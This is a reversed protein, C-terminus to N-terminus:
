GIPRRDASLAVSCHRADRFIHGPVLHGLLLSDLSGLETKEVRPCVQGGGQMGARTRVLRLMKVFGKLTLCFPPNEEHQREAEM